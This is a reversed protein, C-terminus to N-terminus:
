CYAIRVSRSSGGGDSEEPHSKYLVDVPRPPIPPKLNKDPPPLFANELHGGCVIQTDSAPMNLYLYLVAVLSLYAVFTLYGAFKKM